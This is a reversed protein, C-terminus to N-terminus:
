LDSKLPKIKAPDPRERNGIMKLEEGMLRLDNEIASVQYQLLRIARNMLAMAYLMVLLSLAMIAGTVVDGGSFFNIVDM